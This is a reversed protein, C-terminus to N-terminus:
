PDLFDFEDPWERSVPEEFDIWSLGLADTYPRRLLPFISKYAVEVWLSGASYPAVQYPPFLLLLGTETFGFNAFADWDATGAEIGELWHLREENSVEREEHQELKALLLPRVEAQLTALAADTEAFVASLRAIRVLPDLVFVWSSFGYNGHAAGGGYTYIELQQSLVYGKIVPDECTVRLLETRQSARQGFSFIEPMQHLKVARERAVMLQLTSRIADSIQSVLPYRTSEYVPWTVEVEYGPVGEWAEKMSGFTWKVEAETQAAERTQEVNGLAKHIAQLLLAQDGHGALTVYHLPKLADPISVGPDLVAPVAYIHHDPRENLKEVVMRLESQAYGARDVSNRSIFVVVAAAAELASRIESDWHQGPLIRKVDMWVSVGNASLFDYVPFVRDRDPSAYSLFVFPPELPEM